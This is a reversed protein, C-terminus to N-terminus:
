HQAPEATVYSDKTDRSIRWPVFMLASIGLYLIGLWVYNTALIGFGKVSRYCLSDTLGQWFSRMFSCDFSGLLSLLPEIIHVTVLRKLDVSVGSLLSAVIDDLYQFARLFGLDFDRMNQEFEDLTCDVDFTAISGNPYLCTHWTGNSDKHMSTIDCKTGPTGGPDQFHRCKFVAETALPLKKEELFAKGALCRETLLTTSSAATGCVGQLAVPCTWNASAMDHSLSPVLLYGQASFGEVAISNLGPVKVNGLPDPLSIDLALTPCQLGAIYYAELMKYYVPHNDVEAPIPWYLAKMNVSGIVERLRTLESINAVAPPQTGLAQDLTAFSQQIPLIVLDIVDARVTTREGPYSPNRAPLEIIDALNSSASTNGNLSMCRDALFLAMEVTDDIPTGLATLLKEGMQQDFDIMVLCAGSGISVGILLIGGLLFLLAAWFYASCMGCCSCCRVCVHDEAKGRQHCCGFSGLAAVGQLFMVFCVAVVISLAPLLLGGDGNVYDSTQHFGDEAQKVFFGVQDLLQNKAERIPAMTGQISQHMERVAPGQLQSNVTTRVNALAVGVGGEFLAIVTELLEALPACIQCKHMYGAPAQNQPEGLLFQMVRMMEALLGAAQEIEVTRDLLGKLERMFDSDEALVSAITELREVAPVLGIFNLDENGAISDQVLQASFCATGRVGEDVEHFGQLSLLALVLAAVTLCLFIMWLCAHCAINGGCGWRRQCCCCCNRTCCPCVFWCGFPWLGLLIISLIIPFAQRAAFYPDVSEKLSTTLQASSDGSQLSQTAELVAGYVQNEPGAMFQLAIRESQHDIEPLSVPCHRNVTANAQELIESDNSQAVARLLLTALTLARSM